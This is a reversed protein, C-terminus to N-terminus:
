NACNLDATLSAGSLCRQFVGFDSQDIDGDMDLDAAIHGNADPVLTCGPPLASPNYLVAPGTTCAVFIKLDDGDVDGDHDLDARVPVGLVVNDIGDTDLAPGGNHVGEIRIQLTTVNALLASWSGTVSWVSPDVPVSFFQWYTALLNPSQWSASGGPGSISVGAPVFTPGGGPSLVTHYWSLTGTGNLGSWDGLFKSPAIIWGDGGTGSIDDFRAFGGSIGGSSQYTLTGSGILTWGELDTDFTSRAIVVPAVSVVPYHFGIDVIGSDPQNDTRTTVTNDFGSNAAQTSGADVAPSNLPQGASAQSLYYDGWPGTAFLPDSHLNGQGADLDEILCYTGAAGNLDDGNGWLICDRVVMTADFDRAHFVGGLNGVRATNYAITSNTILTNPCHDLYLGAGTQGTNKVILNNQIVPSAFNVYVGGGWYGTNNMIINNKVVPVPPSSSGNQQSYLSIGGAHYTASNNMIINNSIIPSADCCTIGGGATCIDTSSGLGNRITFGIIQSQAGERNVFAVVPGRQGGDIITGTVTSFDHPDLSTVVIAKGQFNLNENYTGPQVVIVDGSQASFIASQITAYQGPVDLEVGSASSSGGYAITFLLAFCTATSSTARRM